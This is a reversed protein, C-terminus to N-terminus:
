LVLQDDISDLQQKGQVAQRERIAGYTFYATWFIATAAAFALRTPTTWYSQRVYSEILAAAVLMAGVGVAVRAAERGAEMLQHKRSRKGPTVVAKGLMFGVGGCLVIAGLETVGHPLLWAWMESRIGAQYHIAVFVGMLMGNFLMLFISPVAALVGTAMALLGVKFNHQFLFSAFFFKQGGGQDRGSRLVALLQEQTSGPQRVDELPWLAHAVLPTSSAAFFGVLAGAILLIGSILHMKWHRMIARGFGESIFTLVGLWISQKPPLYILSHAGATLQNLYQILHQDRTQTSVLALHVTTRRYLEDLREREAATLKRVSQRGREILRALEDWEHKHTGVFGSMSGDRRIAVTGM